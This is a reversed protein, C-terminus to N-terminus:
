NANPEGLKSQFFRILSIVVVLNTTTGSGWRCLLCLFSCALPHLPRLTEFGDHGISTSEIDARNDPQSAMPKLSDERMRQSGFFPWIKLLPSTSLRARELENWREM